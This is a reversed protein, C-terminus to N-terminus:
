TVVHIARATALCAPFATGTTVVYVLTSRVVQIVTRVCIVSHTLISVPSERTHTFFAEFLVTIINTNTLELSNKMRKKRYQKNQSFIQKIEWSETLFRIVHSGYARYVKATPNTVHLRTPENTNIYQHKKACVCVCVCVCVCM